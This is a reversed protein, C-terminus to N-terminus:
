VVFSGGATTPMEKAASTRRLLLCNIRTRRSVEVDKVEAQIM